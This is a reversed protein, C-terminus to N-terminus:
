SAARLSASSLRAVVEVEIDPAGLVESVVRRRVAHSAKGDM